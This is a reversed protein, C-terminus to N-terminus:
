ILTAGGRLADTYQEFAASTSKANIREVRVWGVRLLALRRWENGKIGFFVGAGLWFLTGVLEIGEIDLDLDLVFPVLIFVVIALHAFGITWLKKAFAWMWVLFFAPWSFGRKIAEYGGHHPHQYVDFTKM